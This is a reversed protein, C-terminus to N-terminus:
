VININKLKVKYGYNQMNTAAFCLSVKSFFPIKPIDDNFKNIIAIVIEYNSSQFSEPIIDSEGAKKLKDRFQNRSAIDLLVQSSVLFLGYIILIVSAFPSLIIKFLYKIYNWFIKFISKIKHKMKIEEIIKNNINLIDNFIELDIYFAFSCM